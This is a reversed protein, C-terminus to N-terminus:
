VSREPWVWVLSRAVQAERARAPSLRMVSLEVMDDVGIAQRGFQAAQQMAGDMLLGVGACGCPLGAPTGQPCKSAWRRHVKNPLLWRGATQLASIGSALM